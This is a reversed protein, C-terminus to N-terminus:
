SALFFSTWIKGRDTELSSDEYKWGLLQIIETQPGPNQDWILDRFFPGKTPQTKNLPHFVVWNYLANYYVM